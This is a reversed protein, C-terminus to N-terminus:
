SVLAGGQPLDSPEGGVRREGHRREQGGLEVIVGNSRPKLRGVSTPLCGPRRKDAEICRVFHQFQSTVGSKSDDVV